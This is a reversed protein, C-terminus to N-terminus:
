LSRGLDNIKELLKNLVNVIEKKDMNNVLKMIAFFLQLLFHFKYM